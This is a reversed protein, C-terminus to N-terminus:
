QWARAEKHVLEMDKGNWHYFFIGKEEGDNPAGVVVLLSSNLQFQFPSPLPDEHVVHYANLRLAKPFFVKGSKADVIALEQCAVGCGWSVITYSGSFNPGKRVGARLASRFRYARPHSKLHVHVSPQNPSAPVSFSEFRPASSACSTQGCRVQALAPLAIIAALVGILTRRRM